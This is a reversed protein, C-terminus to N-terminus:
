ETALIGEAAADRTIYLAMTREAIDDWHYTSEVYARAVHGLSASRTPDAILEILKAALDDVSGTAFPVGYDAIVELHAPIDSAIVTKGYSMAELVAIPLGESTSPNVTFRAGAFLAELSDGNQYGTFVISPDDIAQIKLTRVYDDTFASDGVIALKMDRMVEPNDQRAKKWADILTHASKHPVLRSVFAVYQFSQLGFPSLLRDDTVARRPTIGNPIYTAKVGYAVEAYTRLTKSVVICEDAFALCAREGLRLMFQAFRGWKAHHRDICHFTAVVKAQPALIRPIWSLLSPGVGHFHYVDPRVIFAAHLVAFLTHTIADLHKTRLSPLTIVRIGNYRDLGKGAYWARSYAVVAFGERVLRTALETVHTEIGGFRGPVGKQGIMAIQMVPYGLLFSM